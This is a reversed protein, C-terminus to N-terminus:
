LCGSGGAGSRYVYFGLRIKSGKKENGIIIYHLNQCQQVWPPIVWLLQGAM